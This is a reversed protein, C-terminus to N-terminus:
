YRLEAVMEAGVWSKLYTAAQMPTLEPQEMDSSIIDCLTSFSEGEVVTHLARYEGAPLSRFATVLGQRWVLCYQLDQQQPLPLTERVSDEAAALNQEADAADDISDAADRDSLLDKVANWYAIVNYRQPLLQLSPHFRFCLGPWAEAPLQALDLESVLSTEDAAHFACVLAWELQALELLFASDKHPSFFNPSLFEANDALWADSELFAALHQGFDSISRYQSPYRDAYDCSLQYFLDEGLAFALVPYDSQLAEDFRAYYAHRYIDLRTRAPLDASSVISSEIADDLHRVYNQFQSQLQKLDLKNPM